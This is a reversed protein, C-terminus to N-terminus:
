ATKRHALSSRLETLKKIANDTAKILQANEIDDIFSDENAKDFINAIKGTASASQLVLHILKDEASCGAVEHADHGLMNLGARLISLDGTSSALVISEVLTLKHFEQDPNLKNRLVNSSCGVKMSLLDLRHKRSFDRMADELGHSDKLEISTNKNKM